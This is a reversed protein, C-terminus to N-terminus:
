VNNLTTGIDTLIDIPNIDARVYVESNKNILRKARRREAVYVDVYREPIGNRRLNKLAAKLRKEQSKLMNILIRINGFLVRHEEDGRSYMVMGTRVTYYLEITNLVHKILRPTGIRTSNLIYENEKKLADIRSNYDVANSKTEATKTPTQAVPTKVAPKEAPKAELIALLEQLNAIQNRILQAANNNASNTM